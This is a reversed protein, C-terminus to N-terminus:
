ASEAGPGRRGVAQWGDPRGERGRGAPRDPGSPTEPTSGAEGLFAFVAFRTVAHALFAAGIGGTAVTLWGGVLGIALSLVVLYPDRGRAGTRTALAYVLAQLVIAPVPDLGALLLFGLIVGRFAVEDVLATGTANVVGWGYTEPSPLRLGHFRVLAVGAAQLVGVAAAGLGAVLVAEGDGARLGLQGGPDPHIVLIVASFSLGLVFWSLRRRLIAFPSGAADDLYEAVGFREADLRLMVLLLAFGLCVLVRLTEEM